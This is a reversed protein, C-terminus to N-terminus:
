CIDGLDKRKFGVAIAATLIVAMSLLILASITV